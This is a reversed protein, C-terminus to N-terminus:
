AAMDIMNEDLKFLTASGVSAVTDASVSWDDRLNKPMTAIVLVSLAGRYAPRAVM